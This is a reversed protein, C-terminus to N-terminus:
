PATETLLIQRSARIPTGGFALVKRGEYNEFTLSYQAKTLAQIRLMTRVRPHMYWAFKAGGLGGYHMVREELKIMLKIIDAASSEAELNGVDINAIRGVARWDRLALGLDWKYKTVYAQFDGSSDDAVTLQKGLSEVRLGGASGQPYIMSCTNEGWGVLWISTCDTQGSVGGGNLVNFTSLTEDTGAVQGYRKDLGLFRDPYTTTDGYFLTQEVAQRIGELQPMQESLLVGAPDGSKDVVDIDVKTLAELMGCSDKVQATASKGSLVGGYLRRWTPAPLGTRVTHKHNTGDNCAMFTADDLIEHDQNLLEVIKDVKGNPDLRRSIDSLTLNRTGVITAM